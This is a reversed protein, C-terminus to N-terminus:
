NAPSAANILALVSQATPQAKSLDIKTSAGNHDVMFTPTNTIGAKSAATDTDIVFQSTAKDDYCKQFATLNSGTIGAQAPFTTRLQEDTYGQGEQSPQNQYVVDHYKEFAGVTDACAAAIAARTSSDNKLNTDLFTMTRYQLNISGDAVLQNIAQGYMSFYEKCAPCQYDQYEILTPAGSAAAKAGAPHVAIGLGAVANPPTVQAGAAVKKSNNNHLIAWTVAGAVLVLALVSSIAIILRNRQTRKAALEQQLRLQERRSNAAIQNSKNAM